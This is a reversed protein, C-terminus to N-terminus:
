IHILSLARQRVEPTLGGKGDLGVWDGPLRASFDGDRVRQLVRLLERQDLSSVLAPERRPPRPPGEKRPRPVVEKNPSTM